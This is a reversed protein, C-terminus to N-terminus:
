KLEIRLVSLTTAHLHSLPNNYEAIFLESNKRIFKFIPRDKDTIVVNKVSRTGKLPEFSLFLGSNHIYRPKKSYFFNVSNNLVFNSPKQQCTPCYNNKNFWKKLCTYHYVHTCPLKFLTDNYKFKTLCISCKDENLIHDKKYTYKKVSNSNKFFSQFEKLDFREKETFNIIRNLNQIENINYLNYQNNYIKPLVLSMLNIKIPFIGSSIPSLYQSIFMLKYPDNTKGLFWTKNSSNYKIEAINEDNNDSITYKKRYIDASIKLIYSEYNYEDFNSRIDSFKIKYTYFINCIGLKVRKILIFEPQPSLKCCEYKNFDM